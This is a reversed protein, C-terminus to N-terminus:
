DLQGQLAQTFLEKLEPMDEWNRLFRQMDGAWAKRFAGAGGHQCMADLDILMPEGAVLLINSAKMDGHSIRQDKLQGLLRGIRDAMQQKQEWPVASDKFWEQAGVGEVQEMIFYAVPQLPGRREKLLAIPRPTAIGYFRLRHANEWSVFARGQRSSLKIGHWINKVNYRKIVLRQDGAEAVWVTCTNGNKLAQDVGPFTADPDALVRELAPSLVERVVMELRGPQKRCVFDTCERFLKGQFERWRGKRQRRVRRGLDERGPGKKWGREALYGAYLVPVQSEWEPYLQAILLALNELSVDPGLERGIATVGAGDLSYIDGGSLVFNGLHLDTQLLGAKHHRALVSVLRRLLQERSADDEQEWADMLSLPEPIRALVIVPWGSDALEGAYLLEATLIGGQQFAQIGALERQWHVKGRKPDLYLKAFVPRGDLTGMCVQRKGPLLRVTEQCLLERGDDLRYRTQEVM